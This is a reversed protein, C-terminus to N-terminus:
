CSFSCPGLCASGVRDGFASVTERYKSFRAPSVEMWDVTLKIVLPNSFLEPCQAEGTTSERGDCSLFPLTRLLCLTSLFCDGSAEPTPGQVWALCVTSRARNLAVFLSM